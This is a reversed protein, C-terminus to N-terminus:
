KPIFNVFEASNSAAADAAYCTFPSHHHRINLIYKERIRGGIGGRLQAARDRRPRHLIGDPVIEGGVPAAAARDCAVLQRDVAVPNRYYEM